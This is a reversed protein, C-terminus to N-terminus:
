IAIPLSSNVLLRKHQMSLCFLVALAIGARRLIVQSRVGKERITVSAVTLRIGVNDRLHASRRYAVADPGETTRTDVPCVWNSFSWIDYSAYVQYM